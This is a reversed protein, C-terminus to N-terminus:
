VFFAAAFCCSLVGLVVLFVITDTTESYNRIHWGLQALRKM